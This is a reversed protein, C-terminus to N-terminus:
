PTKLYEVSKMGDDGSFMLTKVRAGDKINVHNGYGPFVDRLIFCDVTLSSPLKKMEAEQYVYLFDGDIEAGITKLEVPKNDTWLSFNDATYLAFRAQAEIEDISMGNLGQDSRLLAEQADHLHFKHTVELTGSVALYEVTTISLKARHAHAASFPQVTVLLASVLFLCVKLIKSM